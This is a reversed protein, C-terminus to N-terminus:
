SGYQIVKSMFKPRLLPNAGVLLAILSLMIFDQPLSRAILVMYAHTDGEVFQDHVLLIFFISWINHRMDLGGFKKIVVLLAFGFIVPYLMVGLWGFAAYSKGILPATAFGGFLCRIRLRCYLWDGESYDSQKDPSLIRPLTREWSRSLEELGVHGARDSGTKLLDVHNILSVRELTNQGRGYYQLYFNPDSGGLDNSARSTDGFSTAADVTAQIREGWSLDSRTSRVSLFIPTIFLPLAVGAVALTVILRRSLHGQFAAVTVAYALITEMLAMRSNIVLAFGIDLLAVTVVWADWTRRRGPRAIAAAVAAILGLHLFPTFFKAVTVGSQTDSVTSAVSFAAFLGVTTALYSVKRLRGADVLPKLLPKGINLHAALQFAVFYALVGVLVVLFSSVPQQLNSDLPQGMVLKAVLPFGVFRFTVFFVLLAGFNLAGYQALPISGIVVAVIVLTVSFFNSGLALHAALLFAAAFVFLVHLGPIHGRQQSWPAVGLQTTM